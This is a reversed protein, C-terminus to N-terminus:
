KVQKPYTYIAILPHLSRTFPYSNIISFIITKYCLETNIYEAIFRPKYESIPTDSCTHPASPNVYLYQPVRAKTYTYYLLVQTQMCIFPKCVPISFGPSAFLQILMQAQMCTNSNRPKFVRRPSGLSAHHYPLTMAKEYHCVPMQAQM